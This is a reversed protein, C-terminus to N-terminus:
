AGPRLRYRTARATGLREALESEVLKRLEIAVATKVLGLAEELDKREM